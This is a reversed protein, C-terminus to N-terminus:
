KEPASPAKPWLAVVLAVVAALVLVFLFGGGAHLHHHM